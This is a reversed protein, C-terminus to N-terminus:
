PGNMRPRARARTCTRAENLNGTAICIFFKVERLSRSRGRLISGASLRAIAGNNRANEDSIANRWNTRGEESGDTPFRSKRERKERGGKKEQVKERREKERAKDNEKNNMKSIATVSSRRYSRDRTRRRTRFTCSDASSSCQNEALNLVGYVAAARAIAM